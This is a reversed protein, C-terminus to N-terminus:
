IESQFCDQVKSRYSRGIPIKNDPIELCDYRIAKVCNKNVIFSKHTRLFGKDGLQDELNTLSHLTILKKDKTHWSVYEKMGQVFLIDQVKLRHIVKGEKLMLTEEEDHKELDSEVVEMNKPLTASLSNTKKILLFVTSGLLALSYPASGSIIPWFSTKWRFKYPNLSIVNPYFSSLTFDILAYAVSYILYVLAISLIGFLLYRKSDILKFLIHWNFYTIVLQLGVIVLNKTLYFQLGQGGSFLLSQIFWFCIWFGIHKLIKKKSDTM